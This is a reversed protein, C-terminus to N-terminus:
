ICLALGVGMFRSLLHRGFLYYLYSISFINAIMGHPEMSVQHLSPPNQHRGLGGAGFLELNFASLDSVNRRLNEDDM